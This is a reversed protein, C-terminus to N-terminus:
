RWAPQNLPNVRPYDGPQNQHVILDAIERAELILSYLQPDRSENALALSLNLKNWIANAAQRFTLDDTGVKCKDNPILRDRKEFYEEFFKKSREKEQAELEPSMKSKHTDYSMEEEETEV